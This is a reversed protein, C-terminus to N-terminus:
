GAAGPRTGRARAPAVLLWGYIGAVLVCITFIAISFVPAILAEEAARALYFAVAFGAVLRGIRTGVLEGGFGLSAVALFAISLFGAVNLMEALVRFDEPVGSASHLEAGLWVHFLALLANLVGGTRLLTKM